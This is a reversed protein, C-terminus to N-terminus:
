LRALDDRVRRIITEWDGPQNQRYLRMSPYWATEDSGLTWRYDPCFPLLTWVPLGMAGALHAASTDVSILLDLGSLLAATDAYDTLAAAPGRLDDFADFTPRDSDRIETQVLVFSIDSLALVPAFDSLPVSRSPDLPHRADGSCVLGIRRPFRSRDHWASWRALRSPSPVIYAPVMGADPGLLLPLSLLPCAIDCDSAAEGLPITRAVGPLGDFIGALPWPMELVVSAAARALAPVFRAYQILDGYGQEATVLVHRGALSIGARWQPLTPHRQYNHRLAPVGRRREFHRWGEAQRGIRLLCLSYAFAAADDRPALAIATRYAALAEATHLRAALANGLNTYGGAFDPLLAIAERYLSEAEIAQGNGYAANGEALLASVLAPVIDPGAPDAVYARRLWGLAERSGRSLLLGGLNFLPHFLSPELVVAQRLAHEADQAQGTLILASALDNLITASESAAAAASLLAVAQAPKGENLLDCGIGHLASADFPNDILASRALSTNAPQDTM